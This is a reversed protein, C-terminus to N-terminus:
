AWRELMQQGLSQTERCLPPVAPAGRLGRLSSLARSQAASQSIYKWYRKFRISYSRPSPKGKSKSGFPIENPEFDFLFRDGRDYRMWNSLFYFKLKRIVINENKGVPLLFHMPSFRARISNKTKEATSMWFKLMRTGSPTRICSPHSSIILSLIGFCWFNM